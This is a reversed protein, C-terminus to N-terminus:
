DGKTLLSAEHSFNTCNLNKVNKCKDFSTHFAINQGQRFELRVGLKVLHPYKPIMEALAYEVFSFLPIMEALAYETVSHWV